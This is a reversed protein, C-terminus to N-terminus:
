QKRAKLIAVIRQTQLKLGPNGSRAVIAELEAAASATGWRELANAGNIQVGFDGTKMVAIIADSVQQNPKADFKGTLLGLAQLVRGQNGSKLVAVFGAPTSEFTLIAPAAVPAPSTGQGTQASDTPQSQGTTDISAVEVAAPAETMRGVSSMLQGAMLHPDHGSWGRLASLKKLDVM